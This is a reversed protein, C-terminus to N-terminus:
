VLIRGACLTAVQEASIQRKTAGMAYNLPSLLELPQLLHISPRFEIVIATITHRPHESIHSAVSLPLM